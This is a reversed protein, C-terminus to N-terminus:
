YEFIVNEYNTDTSCIQLSCSLIVSDAELSRWQKVCAQLRKMPEKAHVLAYDVSLNKQPKNDLLSVFKKLM